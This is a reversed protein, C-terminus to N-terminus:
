NQLNEKKYWFGYRDVMTSHYHSVQGNAHMLGNNVPIPHSVYGGQHRATYPHGASFQRECVVTGDVRGRVSGLDYGDGM